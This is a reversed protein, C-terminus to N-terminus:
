RKIIYLTCQFVLTSSGKTLPIVLIKKRVNNIVVNSGIILFTPPNQWQNYGNYIAANGDM